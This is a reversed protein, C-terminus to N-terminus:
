IEFVTVFMTNFYMFFFPVYVKLVSDRNGTQHDHEMEESCWNNIEHSTRQFSCKGSSRYRLTMRQRWARTTIYECKLQGTSYSTPATVTGISCSIL